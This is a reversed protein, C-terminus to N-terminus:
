YDEQLQPQQLLRIASLIFIITMSIQSTVCFPCLAKILVIEAYVLYATFAFGVLAMGFIILTGNERMFDNRQNLLHATLLSSYGIIGIAAVPFGAVESFRSANVEHCGGNGICMKDNNSLKYITMYISVLLGLTVFALSIKYLKNQM